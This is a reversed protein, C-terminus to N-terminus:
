KRGMEGLLSYGEWFLGLTSLSPFIRMKEKEEKVGYFFNEVRESWLGFDNDQM